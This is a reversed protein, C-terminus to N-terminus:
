WSLYILMPFLLFMADHLTLSSTYKSKLELGERTCRGRGMVCNFLMKLIRENSMIADVDMYDYRTSYTATERISIRNDMGATQSTVNRKASPAKVTAPVQQGLDTDCTVTIYCFFITLINMPAAATILPCWVARISLNLYIFITFNFFFRAININQSIRLREERSRKMYPILCSFRVSGNTDAIASNASACLLFYYYYIFLCTCRLTSVGDYQVFLSAAAAAAMNTRM